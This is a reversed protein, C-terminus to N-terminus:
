AAGKLLDVHCSYRPILGEVTNFTEMGFAKATAMDNSFYTFTLRKIGKSARRSTGDVSPNYAPVGHLKYLDNNVQLVLNGLDGKLKNYEASPLDISAIYKVKYGGYSTDHVQLSLSNLQYSM